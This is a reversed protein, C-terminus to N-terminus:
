YQFSYNVTGNAIAQSGDSYQFIYKMAGNVIRAVINVVSRPPPCLPGLMTVSVAASDPIGYVDNVTLKFIYSGPILGAAYFTDSSPQGIPQGILVNAPGTVMSWSIVGNDNLSSDACLRVYSRPYHIVPSDIWIRAIARSANPVGNITIANLYSYIYTGMIQFTLRGNSTVMGNFTAMRNTNTDTRFTITDGFISIRDYQGDNRNRSGFLSVAYTTKATDLGIISITWIVGQNQYIGERLITDPFRGKGALYGTLNDFVYGSNSLVVRWKLSNGFVDTLAASTDNNLNNETKWSNWLPNSYPLQGFRFNVTQGWMIFPFFLLIIAGKIM